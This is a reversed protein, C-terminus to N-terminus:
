VIVFPADPARSTAIGRLRPAMRPDLAFLHIRDLEPEVLLLLDRLVQEREAATFWCECLSKQGNVRWGKMYRLVRYLRKPNSIDYAVLYHRRAPSTTTM